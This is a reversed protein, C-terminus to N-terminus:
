KSLVQLDLCGKIYFVLPSKSHIIFFIHETKMHDSGGGRDEYNKQDYEAM